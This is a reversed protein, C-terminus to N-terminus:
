LTSRVVMLGARLGPRVDPNPFVVYEPESGVRYVVEGDEAILDGPQMETFNWTTRDFAMRFAPSHKVLQQTVRFVAPLHGSPPMGSMLFDAIADSAATFRGLDNRGIAGVQGLEVTAAAVGFHEATYASYTGASAPNLIAAEIGAAGLCGLLSRKAGAAISDPVVAFAPYRSPRIATHLDLHWKGEIGASDEGEDLFAATARMIADARLAEATGELDGREARFMRNLDADIFRKGAAIAAMNGVVLMLDLALRHPAQVLRQLLRGVIEIPATEDGHMGVSLLLRMRASAAASASAPAPRCLQLMGPGPLRVAFGAHDFSEAMASVDGAALAQVMASASSEDPRDAHKDTM